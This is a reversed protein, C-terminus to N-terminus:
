QGQPGLQKLLDSLVGYIETELDHPSLELKEALKHIKADDPYPNMRFFQVIKSKIPSGSKAEKLMESLKM